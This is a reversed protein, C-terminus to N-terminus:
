RCAMGTGDLRLQWTDISADVPDFSAALEAIDLGVERGSLSM